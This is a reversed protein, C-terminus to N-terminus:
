KKLDQNYMEVTKTTSNSVSLGKISLSLITASLIFVLIIVWAQYGIAHTFSFDFVSVVFNWLSHLIISYLLSRTQFYVAGLILGMLFYGLLSSFSPIHMLTFFVSSVIISLFPTYRNLLKRLIIGRVFIEEFIPTLIVMSIIQFIFYYINHYHVKKIEIGTTPLTNILELVRFIPLLFFILCISIAVVRLFNQREKSDNIELSFLGSFKTKEKLIFYLVILFGSDRVFFIIKGLVQGFKESKIDLGISSQSLIVVIVVILVISLILVAFFMKLFIIATQEITLINKDM